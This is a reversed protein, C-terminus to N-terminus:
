WLTETESARFQTEGVSGFKKWTMQAESRLGKSGM